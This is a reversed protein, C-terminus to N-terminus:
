PRRLLFPLGDVPIKLVILSYCMGGIDDWRAGEGKELKVGRLSAPIYGEQAKKFDEQLIM